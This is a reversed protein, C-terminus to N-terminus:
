DVFSVGRKKSYKVASQFRGQAKASQQPKAVGLVAVVDVDVFLAAHRAGRDECLDPNAHIGFRRVSTASSESVLIYLASKRRIM